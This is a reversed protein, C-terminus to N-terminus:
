TRTQLLLLLTLHQCYSFLFLHQHFNHFIILPFKYFIFLDRTSLSGSVWVLSLFIFCPSSVHYIILYMNAYIILFILGLWFLYILRSIFLNKCIVFLKWFFDKGDADQDPGTMAQLMKFSRSPINSGMYKKPSLARQESPPVPSPVRDSPPTPSTSSMQIPINHM